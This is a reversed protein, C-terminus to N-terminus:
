RTAAEALRRPSRSALLAAGCVVAALVLLGANLLLATHLASAMDVGDALRSTLVVGLVAPGLAAGYQRMATNAAAAMGAQRHPVAHIAAVAVASLTFANGVGLVALRWATDAFSSDASVGTLLLMAAAELGLGLALVAIPRGRGLLRGAFPNVLATVGNICLLRVGIALPSLHQASGFFLSLLFM